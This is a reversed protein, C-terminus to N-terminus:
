LNAPCGKCAKPERYAQVVCAAKSIRGNRVRCHLDGNAYALGHPRDNQVEPHRTSGPIVSSKTKTRQIM